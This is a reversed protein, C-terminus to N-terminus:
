YFEMSLLYQVGSCDLAKFYWYRFAVCWLENVVSYKFALTSIGVIIISKKVHPGISIHPGIPIHTHVYTVIYM